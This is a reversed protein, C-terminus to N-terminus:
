VAANAEHDARGEPERRLDLRSAVETQRNGLQGKGVLQHTDEKEFREVAGETDEAPCSIM